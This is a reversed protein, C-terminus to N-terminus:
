WWTRGGSGPLNRRGITIVLPWVSPVQAWGKYLEGDALIEYVNQEIEIIRQKKNGSIYSHPLSETASLFGEANIPV